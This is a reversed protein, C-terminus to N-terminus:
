EHGTEVDQAADNEEVAEEGDEEEVDLDEEEYDPDSDLDGLKELLKVDLDVHENFVGWCPICKELL